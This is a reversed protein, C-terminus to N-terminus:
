FTSREVEIVRVIKVVKGTLKFHEAPIIPPYEPNESVFSIQDGKVKMRRIIIDGYEDTIVVIDNHKCELTNIWIIYDGGKIVPFMSNDRVITAKANVPVDPFGEFRLIECPKEPDEASVKEVVPIPNLGAPEPVIEPPTDEDNLLWKESVNFKECLRKIFRLSPISKGSELMYIYSPTVNLIKAFERGSTRGRIYRIKKGINQFM